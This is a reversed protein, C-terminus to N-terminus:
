VAEHSRDAGIGLDTRLEEWSREDIEDAAFDDLAQRDRAVAATEDVSPMARLHGALSTLAVALTELARSLVAAGDDRVRRLLAPDIRPKEQLTPM